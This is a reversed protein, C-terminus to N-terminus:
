KKSINWCNTNCCNTQIAPVEHVPPNVNPNEPIRPIISIETIICEHSWSLDIETECNILLLDLSRWFNSLYILPVVVKADIINNDNPTSGILKTKYEFPKSTITKNNSIMDNVNERHVVKKSATKVADVGKNLM